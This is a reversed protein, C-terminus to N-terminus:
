YCTYKCSIGAVFSHSYCSGHCLRYGLVHALPGNTGCDPSSNYVRFLIKPFSSDAQSCFQQSKKYPSFGPYGFVGGGFFCSKPMSDGVSIMKYVLEGIPFPLAEREILSHEFITALMLGLSGAALALCSLFLAFSFPSSMLSCFAANDIFFLTPFSFGCATALIGGIGGAATALGLSQTRARQSVFGNFLYFILMGGLVLTAEIWPGLSTSLAIYSNIATAFFSLLFAVAITLFFM